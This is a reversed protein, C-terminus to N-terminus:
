AQIQFFPWSGETFNDNGQIGFTITKGFFYPLGLDLLSMGFLNMNVGVGAHASNSNGGLESVANYIDFDIGFSGGLEGQLTATQLSNQSPCLWPTNSFSTPCETIGANPFYYAGSGSDIIAQM